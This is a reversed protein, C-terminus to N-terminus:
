GGGHACEVGYVMRVSVKAADQEVHMDILGQAATRAHSTFAGVLDPSM